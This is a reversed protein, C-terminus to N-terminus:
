IDAIRNFAAQEHGSAIDGATQDILTKREFEPSPTIPVGCLRAIEDASAPVAFSLAATLLAELLNWQHIRLRM